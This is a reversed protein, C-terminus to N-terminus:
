NASFRGALLVFRVRPEYMAAVLAPDGFIKTVFWRFQMFSPIENRPPMIPRGYNDYGLSFFHSLTKQYAVFLNPNPCHLFYLAFGKCFFEKM